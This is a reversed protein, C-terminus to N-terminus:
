STKRTTPNTQSSAQWAMAAMVVVSIHALATAAALSVVSPSARAIQLLVERGDLIAAVGAVAVALLLAPRGLRLVAGALLLSVVVFGWVLVPNELNIGLFLEAVQEGNEDHGVAEVPTSVVTAAEAHEAAEGIGAETNEGAEATADHTPEAPSGVVSAAPAERPEGGREAVIAAAFLLASISM